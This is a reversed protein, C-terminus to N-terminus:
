EETENVMEAAFSKLDQGEAGKNPNWESVYQSFFDVVDDIKCVQKGGTLVGAKRLREAEQELLEARLDFRPAGRKWLVYHLHVM